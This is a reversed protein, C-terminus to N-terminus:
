RSSALTNGGGWPSDVTNAAVPSFEREATLDLKLEGTNVKELFKIAAVYDETFNNKEDPVLRRRYLKYCSITIAM